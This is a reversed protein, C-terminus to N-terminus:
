LRNLRSFHRRANCQHDGVLLFRRAELVSAVSTVLCDVEWGLSDITFGIISQDDGLEPFCSGIYDTQGPKNRTRPGVRTRSNGLRIRLM